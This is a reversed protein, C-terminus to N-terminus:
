DTLTYSYDAFNLPLLRRFVLTKTPLLALLRDPTTSTIANTPLKSNSGSRGEKVDLKTNMIVDRTMRRWPLSTACFYDRARM